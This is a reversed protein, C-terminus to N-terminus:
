EKKYLYNEFQIKGLVFEKEGTNYQYNISCDFQHAGGKSFTVFLFETNEKAVWGMLNIFFLSKRAKQKQLGVEPSVLRIPTNEITAPLEIDPFDDPQGYVHKGFFLTDFQIQYTKNVAKIYNAIAQTYIQTLEDTSVANPDSTLTNPNPRDTITKGTNSNNATHNSCANLALSLLGIFVLAKSSLVTM